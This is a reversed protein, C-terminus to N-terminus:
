CAGPNQSCFDEFQQADSGPEPPATDATPADSQDPAATGGGSDTTGSSDTGGTGREPTRRTTARDLGVPQRAGRRQRGADRHGDPDAHRRRRAAATM